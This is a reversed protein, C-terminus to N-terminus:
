ARLVTEIANILVNEKIPKNLYAKAGKAISTSVFYDQSMASAIVVRAMPDDSMMIELAELGPMGPMTLDLLVLDPKTARFLEVAEEGDEAEGAVEHGNRELMQRYVMRMFLADDAILIRAM